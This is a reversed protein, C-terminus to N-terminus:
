VTGQAATSDRVVLTPQLLVGAHMAGIRWAGLRAVRM